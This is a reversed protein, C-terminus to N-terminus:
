SQLKECITDVELLIELFDKVEVGHESKWSSLTIM